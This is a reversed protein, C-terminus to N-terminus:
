TSVKALHEYSYVAGCPNNPNVMVIAVTNDDALTEVGEIDVEWEKEPLLNYHRIELGGLAARAEYLPYGPRPLLVNAGPTALVAMTIEIAHNCGATLLIDGASLEYPLYQSLYAAVASFTRTSSFNINL